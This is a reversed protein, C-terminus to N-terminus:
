ATEGTSEWVNVQVMRRNLRTEAEYMSQENEVTPQPDCARLASLVADMNAIAERRTRAYSDVQWFVHDLYAYGCMSNQPQSTIDQYILYPEATGSPAIPTFVKGPMASELVAMFQEETM